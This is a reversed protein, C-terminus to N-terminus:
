HGFIHFVDASCYTGLENAGTAVGVRVDSRSVEAILRGSGFPIWPFSVKEFAWDATVQFSSNLVKATRLMLFHGNDNLTNLLRGLVICLALTYRKKLIRMLIPTNTSPSSM